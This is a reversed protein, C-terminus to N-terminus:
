QRARRLRTIGALSIGLGALALWLIGQDSSSGTGNGTNPLETVDPDDDEGAVTTPPVSTSTPVATPISTATETPVETAPAATAPIETATATGTASVATSTVTTAETPTPTAPVTPATTETPTATATETATETPTATATETATATPAAAAICALDLTATGTNVSFRLTNIVGTTPIVYSATGPYPVIAVAIGDVAIQVTAPNGSSPDVATVSVTEGADFSFLSMEFYQQDGLTVLNVTDCGNSAAAAHRLEPGSVAAGLAVLGVFMCRALGRVLSRGWIDQTM